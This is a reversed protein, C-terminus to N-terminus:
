KLTNIGATAAIKPTSRALADGSEVRGALRLLAGRASTTM